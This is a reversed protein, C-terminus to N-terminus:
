SSKTLENIKEAKDKSGKSSGFFFTLVSGYGGIVIGIVMDVITKNEAPIKVFFLAITMLFVFVIVGISLYYVFRKSFLDDQKLAEKQMERADALDQMDLEILKFFREAEEKSMGANNPDNSVLGIARAMDGVGVADLVSPLVKSKISRLFNGVKTGKGGNKKLKPNNSM